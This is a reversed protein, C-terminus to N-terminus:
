HTWRKIYEVGLDALRSNSTYDSRTQWGGTTPSVVGTNTNGYLRGSRSVREARMTEYGDSVANTNTAPPVYPRKTAWLTGDDAQYVRKTMRGVYKELTENGIPKDNGLVIDKDSLISKYTKALRELEERNTFEYNSTTAQGPTVDVTENIIKYKVLQDLDTQPIASGDAFKADTFDLFYKAPIKNIIPWEPTQRFYDMKIFEKNMDDAESYEVVKESNGGLLDQLENDRSYEEWSNFEVKKEQFLYDVAKNWTKYDIGNIEKGEPKDIVVDRRDFQQRIEDVDRVHRPDAKINEVRETNGSEIIRDEARPAVNERIDDDPSYVNENGLKTPTTFGNGPNQDINSSAFNPGSNQGQGLDYVGRTPYINGDNVGSGNFIEKPTTIPQTPTGVPKLVGAPTTQNNINDVPNTPVGAPTTQPNAKEFESTISNKLTPGNNIAGAPTTQNNINDAPNTTVGAPTTQPNAREFDSVGTKPATQMSPRGSHDGDIMRGGYVNTVDADDSKELITTTGEQQFSVNGDADVNFSSGIKMIASEADQGPKFMGYEIALRDPKTSLIHQVSPPINNEKILDETLPGNVNYEAKLKGQLEEITKIAGHGKGVMAEVPSHPGTKVEPEVVEPEEVAPEPTTPEPTTPEEVVPEPTEPTTTDPTDPTDPTTPEPTEPVSAHDVDIHEAVKSIEGTMVPAGPQKYFWDPGDGKITPSGVGSGIAGYMATGAFMGLGVSTVAKIIAQNRFRKRKENDLIKKEAEYEEETISGRVFKDLMDDRIEEQAEEFVKNKKSYAVDFIKGSTATTAYGTAMSAGFKIGVLGALGYKAMLIGGVGTAASVPLFLATSLAVKKWRPMAQYGAWAKKFINKNKLVIKENIVKQREDSLVEYMVDTSKYRELAEALKDDPFGDATLEATKEEMLKNGLDIQTQTYEARLKNYEPTYYDEEKYDEPNKQERKERKNKSYLNTVGALLNYTKTSLRNVAIDKRMLELCKKLEKSYAERVNKLKERTEKATLNKEKNDLTPEAPEQDLKDDLSLPKLDEDEPNGGTQESTQQDENTTDADAQPETKAEAEGLGMSKSMAEIAEKSAGSDIFSQLLAKKGALKDAERQTHEEDKEERAKKDAEIQNKLETVANDVDAVSTPPMDKNNTTM